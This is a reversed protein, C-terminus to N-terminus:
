HRSDPPAYAYWLRTAAQSHEREIWLLHLGDQEDLAISAHSQEGAGAAPIPAYDTDWEDDENYSSLWIDSNGNRYDDWAVVFEGEANGAVAPNYHPLKDGHQSHVKENPGFAAGGESGLASFIGYGAGGRRKDMWAALVEDDGFATIAVRAAGNGKDYENRNAYFENLNEPATFNLEALESYSYLMRTHGARRDEWAICVMGGGLTIAPMLLPTVLAEAEVQHTAGKITLVMNNVSLRTIRLSYAAKHKERWVVLAYDDSAAISAQAANSGSLKLASGPGRGSWIRAYVEADQEYVVIFKGAGIGAIAPQYAEQGNSVQIAASFEMEHQDKQALYVQPDGSSDDEWVLAVRGGSVAIHKRGAGELHHFVGVRAKSGVAIKQQFQWGEASQTAPSLLILIAAIIFRM